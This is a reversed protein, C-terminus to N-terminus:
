QEDARILMVDYIFHYEAPHTSDIIDKYHIKVFYLVLYTNNGMEHSDLDYSIRKELQFLFSYMQWILPRM